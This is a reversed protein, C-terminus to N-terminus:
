YTQWLTVTQSFDGAKAHAERIFVYLRGGDGFNMKLGPDSDIQLLMRWEAMGREIEPPIDQDHVPEPLGRALHECSLPMREFQIENPFGGIRHQIDDGPPANEIESVAKWDEPDGSVDGDWIGLWYLNPASIFSTFSVRREKFHLRATAPTPRAAGVPETSYIVQVVDAFGHREPDYFAYFRGHDPLWDARIHPRLAALDIQGLFARPQREGAPWAKGQPLEPEGGLKSFGPEEAPILLLTPEAMQRMRAALQRTQVAVAARQEPSLKEHPPKGRFVGTWLRIAVYGLAIVLAIWQALAFLSGVWNLESM